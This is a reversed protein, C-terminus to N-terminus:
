TEERALSKLDKMKQTVEGDKKDHMKMLELYIKYDASVIVDYYPYDKEYKKQLQEEIKAKQWKRWPDLQVAIILDKDAFMAIAREVHKESTLKKELESSDETAAFEESVIFKERKETCGTLLCLLVSVVAILVYKQM